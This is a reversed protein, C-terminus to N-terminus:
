ISKLATVPERDDDVALKIASFLKPIRQVEDFIVENAYHRMFGKPDDEFALIMEDDDFSVYQYHNLLHHKLLTSKGSQRPSTIGVVPFLNIFQTLTPELIRHLYVM